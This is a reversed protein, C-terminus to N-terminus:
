SQRIVQAAEMLVELCVRHCRCKNRQCPLGQSCTPRWNEQAWWVQTPAEQTATTVLLRWSNESQAADVATGRRVRTAIRSYLLHILYKLSSQNNKTLSKSWSQTIIRSTSSSPTESLSDCSRTLNQMKSTTLSAAQAQFDTKTWPNIRHVLFTSKQWWKKSHAMPLGQSHISNNTEISYSRRCSIWCVQTLKCILQPTATSAQNPPWERNCPTTAVM